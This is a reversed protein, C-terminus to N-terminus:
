GESPQTTVHCAAHLFTVPIGGTARPHVFVAHMTSVHHQQQQQQARSSINQGVPQTQMSAMRVQEYLLFIYRHTGRPPTPGAYETVTFGQPVDSGPPVAAAAATQV